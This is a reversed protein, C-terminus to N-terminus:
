EKTKVIMMLQIRSKGVSPGGLFAITEPTYKGTPLSQCYPDDCTCGLQERGLIQMTPIKQGCTCERYYIGYHASPMLMGHAANCVPCHYVPYVIERKCSPCLYTEGRIKTLFFETAHVFFAVTNYLVCWLFMFGVLVISLFPLFAVSSLLIAFIIGVLLFGLVCGFASKKKKAWYKKIEGYNLVFTAKITTFLNRKWDGNWYFFSERANSENNTNNMGNGGTYYMLGNKQVPQKWM